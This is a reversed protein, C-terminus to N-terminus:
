SYMEEVHTNTKSQQTWKRFMHTSNSNLPGWQRFMDGVDTHPNENENACEWGEGGDTWKKFMNTSKANLPGWQRLMKGVDTHPNENECEGM